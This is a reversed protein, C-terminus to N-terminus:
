RSRRGRVASLSTTALLEGSGLAADVGARSVPAERRVASNRVRATARADVSDAAVDTPSAVTAVVAAAPSPNAASAGFRQVMRAIDARDIAGNGDLDGQAATAGSSIGFNRQIVMLDAIGVLGDGNLDGELTPTSNGPSKSTRHFYYFAPDRGESVTYYNNGDWDFAIAEGNSETPTGIVPLVLPTGALAAAITQGEGRVYLRIRDEDRVLIEGGLPSIDAASPRGFAVTGLPTLSVTAGEVLSAAAAGFLRTTPSEKALIYLDGNVPDVMLAEADTAGTPYTFRITDHESGGLTQSQDGGTASILPERVRVVSVNARDSDNDGIDGLYIYSEGPVPGPGVAIDETDITSVGSLTITGLVQGTANIAVIRNQGADNHVWFVGPNRHSAAMGSLERFSTVVNGVAMGPAFAPTEGVYPITVSAENSPTSPMRAGNVAVVYYDHTANAPAPDSYTTQATSGVLYGNRYVRYAQIGTDPDSGASWSLQVNTGVLNAILNSAPLPATDDSPGESRGPSGYDSASAMWGTAQSWSAPPGSPNVIVLSRGNGATATHWSSSFSFRFLETGAERLILEEGSNALGGDFAGAVRFESGYRMEFADIDSVVVLYESPALTGSFNFDVGGALQVGALSIDTTGTNQLEIYDFDGRSFGAADEAPSVPPPNYMIETVVLGAASLAFRPEFAEFSRTKERKATGHRTQPAIWRRWQSRFLGM